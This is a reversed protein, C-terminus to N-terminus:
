KDVSVNNYDTVLRPNFYGIPHNQFDNVYNKPAWTNKLSYSPLNVRDELMMPIAEEYAAKREERNSSERASTILQDFEDNQYFHGHNVGAMEQAFLNYMFDSPDPPGSWGLVYMNYDNPDGTLFKELYTGWDLRQVSASYGAESLGNGISVGIQERKDDPPVIINAEWDGSVNSNGDLLSKAGDVDKDSQIEAWEDVPFEWEEAVAEPIPSYTRVGTPEVFNNVADDMSFSMDVARRVELDATPGSQCNFAVYFYNIGATETITADGMNEVTTWLKPPIDQIMDVESNRFSTLRTTPEPIPTFEVEAVNATEPGWYDDWRELRIFEGETWDVFRFPGSGTPNANWGDAEKEEERVSMPVVSQTLSHIFLGYPFDLDVQITTDDVAEANNVMNFDAALQTEEEVPQTISYIVDEATVADGNHFVADDRIPFVYRTGERSIEPMESAIHPQVATGEGYTYIPSFVRNAVLLGPVSIQRIPDFYRASKAQGINLTGGSMSGGGSDGETETATETATSESGGSDGSDSDGSGSDGSGSDGGGSCGALMGATGTAGVLGLM